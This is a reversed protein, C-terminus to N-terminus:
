AIRYNGVVCFSFWSGMFFLTLVELDFERLHWEKWTLPTVNLYVRYKSECGHQFSHDVFLCCFDLLDFSLILYPRLRDLTLTM